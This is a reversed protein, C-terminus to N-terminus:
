ESYFACPRSLNREEGEFMIKASATLKSYESSLKNELQLDEIVEPSFSKLSFEALTFFQKGLREELQTRFKSNVLEKYFVSNIESYLPSYEDWYSQEKDYYEDATNITHRIEVLTSMTQIYNRVANIRGIYEYQSELNDAKKLKEILIMLEAKVQEYNPREYKFESFKM